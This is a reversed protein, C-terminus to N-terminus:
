KKTIGSEEEFDSIVQEMKELAGEPLEAVKHKELVSLAEEYARETADKAGDDQWATRNRRDFVKAHSQEKMHKFTHESSIFEGAPGVEHIVEMAIEEDSIVLGQVIRKIFRIVEVDMVLKAYDITLGLELAGAGYIVNGGALSGLLSNMAYEYGAQADPIKSDSIGGGILSPLKYYQALKVAAAGLLGHEPTGVAGVVNKLDMITSMSCYTCPTGKRALQALIITSLVEANHGVLTGALTVASTAGALAMPIIAIGIGSRAARIAMECCEKGLILPTTPCVFLTFHPRKLFNDKGGVSLAAMEILRDVNRGQHAGILIHKNTNQLMAFLNYLPQAEPPKETSGLPRVMVNIEDYYDCLRVFSALDENRSKRLKRTHPDIVQICEGFTSYGTRNPEAVYDYEPLRGYYVAKRPASRLCDEVVYSPIKVVPYGKDRDVKAGAEAFLSVAEESEVKIGTVELLELTAFHISDLEDESFAKLGFGNVHSISSRANRYM